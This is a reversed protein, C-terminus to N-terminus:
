EVVRGDRLHIQRPCRAAVDPEHTVVLITRGEAHLAAFLEMIENSTATDLNGTPEDALLIAPDTVLARAIAVRQAQGGSMQSPRHDTRDGLGVRELTLGARRKASSAGGYLLPLEVNELATLRPLLSFNQFVFGIRRNRIEALRNKSLRSVDEDELFYQGNDPRDLCGLIQMLTSKGSGSSGVVAVMEGAGIELNVGRLAHVVNEGLEYSKSIDTLRIM